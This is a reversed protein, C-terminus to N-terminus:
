PTMRRSVTQLHHVLQQRKSTALNTYNGTAHQTRYADLGNTSEFKGPSASVEDEIKQLLESWKVSDNGRTTTDSVFHQVRLSGGAMYSLHVVIAGAQGGQETYTTTLLTFDSFGARGVSRWTTLDNSFFEDTLGAFDANRAQGRFRDGVDLSRNAPIFPLYSMASVSPGFFVVYDLGSLAAALAAPDILNTTLLVGIRRSPYSGLFATLEAIGRGDSERFVPFVHAADALEPALAAQWASQAASSTLDGRSPNAVLYVKAGAARLVTLKRQLTAPPKVGEILPVIRGDRALEPALDELALLEQQRGYLFPSYM